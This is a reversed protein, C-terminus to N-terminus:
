KRENGRIRADLWFSLAQTGAQAPVLPLLDGGSMGTYAPIWM